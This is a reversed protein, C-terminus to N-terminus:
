YKRWFHRIKKLYSSIHLSNQNGLGSNPRFHLSIISSDCYWWLKWYFVVLEWKEKASRISGNLFPFLGFNSSQLLNIFRSIAFKFKELSKFNWVVIESKHQVKSFLWLGLCIGTPSYNAWSRSSAQLSSLKDILIENM